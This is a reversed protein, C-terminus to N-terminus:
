TNKIRPSTTVRKRLNCPDEPTPGPEDDEQGPKGGALSDLTEYVEGEGRRIRLKYIFEGKSSTTKKHTNTITLDGCSPCIQPEGFINKKPAPVKWEFGHNSGEMPVFAFGKATGTLTWVMVQPDEDTQVAYGGPPEDVDVVWTQGYRVLSVNLAHKIHTRM